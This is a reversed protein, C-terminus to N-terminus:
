RGSGTASSEAAGPTLYGDLFRGLHSFFERRQAGGSLFHDGGRQEIYQFPKNAQHLVAALARSQGVDVVTDQDGHVMLLPLVFDNAHHHPSNARLEDGSQVRDRNRKVLDFDYIRRVMTELNAIGALSVACRFRDGFRYASVLAAYGGYSAGVVCVRAPDTIGERVLWDVGDLLDDQMSRGWQRFGAQMFLEGYGVSGRYNPKLVAFGREALFQVWPDFRASERDYPGGHPLVVTPWPAKFRSDPVALYGPIVKGDRAAYEVPRTDRVETDRLDPYDRAVETVLGTSRNVLFYGPSVGGYVHFLFHQYDEDTSLLQHHEGPLRRELDVFIAALNQDFWVAHPHHRLYRVGAPRGTVPDQVLSGFVDFDPDQHVVDLVEGDGYRVRYIGHRDSGFTMNMYMETGDASFGLPVPPVESEFAPNSYARPVGGDVRFVVPLDGNRFGVGIRVVGSTDAYWHRIQARHKRVRTLTNNEIDLRYVSPRNPNMRNLQVLIHKDDDSRWSVIRDQIQPRYVPARGVLNRADAELVLFHSGDRNVAFLRTATVPGVRPVAYSFRWSCVIRQNNAWRCWNLLGPSHSAALIVRDEGDPTARVALEYVEGNSRLSLLHAGDPSLSADDLLPLDDVGARATLPLVVPFFCLSFFRLWVRVPKM